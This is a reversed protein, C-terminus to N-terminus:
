GRGTIQLNPNMRTPKEVDVDDVGRNEWCGDGEGAVLWGFNACSEKASTGQFARLPFPFAAPPKYFSADIVQSNIRLIRGSQCTNLGCGSHIPLHIFEDHKRRNRKGM